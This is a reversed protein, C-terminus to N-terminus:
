STVIIDGDVLKFRFDRDELIMIILNTDEYRITVPLSYQNSLIFRGVKDIVESKSLNNGINLIKM